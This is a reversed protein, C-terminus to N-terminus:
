ARKVLEVRRNKARGKETMNTDTPALPGVGYSLIRKQSVGYQVVLQKVIADARAKSLKLVTDFDSEMDTHAVIFLKIEPNQKLYDSIAKFAKDSEPKITATNDDFFIDYIMAKGNEKIDKEIQEPTASMNKPAAQVMSVSFLLCITLFSFVLNRRLSM